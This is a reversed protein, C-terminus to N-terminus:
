LFLKKLINQATSFCYQPACTILHQNVKLVTQIVNESSIIYGIRWGSIGMNKSLSNVVIVGDKNPVVSAMSTFSGDVFDSYAEDVM